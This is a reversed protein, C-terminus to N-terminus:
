WTLTETEQKFRAQTGFENRFQAQLSADLDRFRRTPSYRFHRSEFLTTEVRDKLDYANVRIAPYAADEYWIQPPWFGGLKLPPRVPIRRFGNHMSLGDLSRTIRTLNAPPNPITYHATTQSACGFVSSLLCLALMVKVAWVNGKM